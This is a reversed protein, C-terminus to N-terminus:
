PLPFHHEKVVEPDQRYIQPYPLDDGAIRRLLLGAAMSGIRGHRQRVTIWAHTFLSSISAEDFAAIRIERTIGHEVLYREAGIRMFLNIVFIYKLGPNEELLEGMLRYGSEIHMDGYKMISKDLPKGYKELAARYGDVRERSSTINLPGGILAIRSAGDLLALEVASFAGRFNDTLVADAALGDILRDVLVFPIGVRKLLQYHAGGSCTSPIIIIGDVQKEIMVDVLEAECSADERSNCIFSIYGNRRLKEEIGEAVSMFFDNQFEPSIIGITHTRSTKLSRAIPNVRYGLKEMCDLVRRGTSEAVKPDKNLVRSITATSFGACEAVDRMTPKRSSGM